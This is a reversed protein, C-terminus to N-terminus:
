KNKSRKKEYLIHTAELLKEMKEYITLIDLREAYGLSKPYSGTVTSKLWDWLLDKLEPLHAFDFLEDIVQYPDEIESQNLQYFPKRTKSNHLLPM